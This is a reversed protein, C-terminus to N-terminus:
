SITVPTGLPLLDQLQRTVDNPVRVCGNSVNNGISSPDNTGHIGVQGDGGAFETLVESHASLGLAFPGYPGDANETILKDVVFFRGTPTPTDPAGIAVATDVLVEDGDTVILRREALDVRVAVTVERIEIGDARIWGTSENPRTPLQVHLWGDTGDDVVVLALASGFESHSPLVQTPETDGPAAFVETDATPRAVLTSPRRSPHELLTAIPPAARRAPAAPWPPPPAEAAASPHPSPCPPSRADHDHDPRRRPPGADAATVEQGGVRVDGKCRAAVIKEGVRRGAAPAAGWSGPVGWADGPAVLGQPMAAPGRRPIGGPLTPSDGTFTPTAVVSDDVEAGVM